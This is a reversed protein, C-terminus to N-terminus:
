KNKLLELISNNLDESFKDAGKNNLHIYDHYDSLVFTNNKSYDLFSVGKSVSSKSWLSDLFVKTKDKPYQLMYRRVPPFVLFLSIDHEDSLEVIKKFYSIQMERPYYSKAPKILETKKAENYYLVFQGNKKLEREPSLDGKIYKTINKLFLSFNSEFNQIMFNGFKDNLKDGVSFLSNKEHIKYDEMYSKDFYKEYVYNRSSTLRSFNFYDVGLILNKPKNGSDIVYKLRYFMQNYSDNDHSFNFSKSFTLKEPNVGRYLLSSGLILTEYNNILSNDFTSRLQEQTTPGLTSKLVHNSFKVYAISMTLVSSFIIFIKFLFKRM